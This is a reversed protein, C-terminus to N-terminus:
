RTITIQKTTDNYEVQAGLTESVFRLPVFTRGPALTAPACDIAQEAGDVLVILSGLTLIITKGSDEITVTRNAPEWEVKAGLAESVFRVPVLTRSAQQDVYPPADLVYLQGAVTAASDGIILTIVKPMDAKVETGFVAFKTLHNVVTVAFYKGSQGDYETTTKLAVWEGAEDDYYHIVPLENEILSAPDYAIKITLSNAGFDRNGTTTIDYVSGGLKLRMGPPVISNHESASLKKISFSADTSISAAPVNVIVGGLSIEGGSTAKITKSVKNEVVPLSSGGSSPGGSSTGGGSRNINLTYIKQTIGDQAIVEISITNAGVGLDIVNSNGVTGNIAVTAANDALIATIITSTISHGVSASYSTINSNFDPTLTIGSATLGMLNANESPSLKLVTVDFNRSDSIGNKYVSATVTVDADSEDYSPRTVVGTNSIVAQNGSLWTITSGNAGTTQFNLNQTVASASDGPAYGIGLAAKDQAVAEADTQPRQLVTISFESTESALGNTITATLTVQRDASGYDPRYVQGTVTVTGPDSSTWYITSSDVLGTTILNLDTIVNDPTANTNKIADWTLAAKDDAVKAADSKPIDWRAYVTMDGAVVSTATFEEGWNEASGDQTWWGAFSYGSRTPPTPLSDVTSGSAVDKTTPEADTSGLDNNNSDFTVTHTVAKIDSEALTVLKFKWLKHNTNVEYVAVYKNTVKDVGWIDSGSTYPDIVGAGTPAASLLDPVPIVSSLVQVILRNGSGVTATIKTTGMATGPAPLAALEEAPIGSITVNPSNNIYVPGSTNNSLSGGSVTIVATSNNIHIGYAANDRITNNALNIIGTANEIRLGYLRSYSLESNSITITGAGNIIVPANYSNHGGWSAGGYRLVCHDFIANGDASYGLLISSWGGAAPTTSNGDGNTDGGISDDRYDTFYIKNDATGRADLTGDILIRIGSRVKVIVGPDITLTKGASVYMDTNIVYPFISSWRTDSNITGETVWIGTVGTNNSAINTGSAIGALGISGSGNAGFSNGSVAAPLTPGEVYLGYQVNNNFANGSIGPSGKTSLIGHVGNNQITNNTINITGSADTLRIGYVRSYSLESNSITINGARNIIVPANYHGWGGWTGGGYRFVCHNLTGGGDYEYGFLISSWGGAAPSTSSGDGNTDGGIADDRYDTFYIKNDATGQANLTGDILIRCGGKVKVIVGPEITLTVNNLVRIDGTVVYLNSASWTTNTAIEGSVEVVGPSAWAMAPILAALSFVMAIKIAWSLVKILM